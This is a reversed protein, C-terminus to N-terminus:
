SLHKLRHVAFPLEQSVVEQYASFLLLSFHQFYHKQSPVRANRIKRRTVVLHDLINCLFQDFKLVETHNDSTLM